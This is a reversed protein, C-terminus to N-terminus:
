KSKGSQPLHPARKDPEVDPGLKPLSVTFRTEYGELKTLREPNNWVPESQVYIDGGHRVVIERTIKLGIGTGPKFRSKDEVSRQYGEFIGRQFEKPIGLGMDIVTITVSNRKERARVVVKTHDFGYKVANDILNTFVQEMREKDCKVQLRRASLPHWEIRMKRAEASHQFRSMCENCIAVINNSQFNYRLAERGEIGFVLYNDVVKKARYIEGRIQERLGEAKSPDYLLEATLQLVNHLPARFEHAAESLLSQVAETRERFEEELAGTSERDRLVIGLETAYGAILDRRDQPIPSFATPRVARLVGYCKGDHVIPAAFFQSPLGGESCKGAWDPANMADREYRPQLSLLVSGTLGEGPRYSRIGIAEQAAVVIGGEGARKRVMVRMSTTAALILTDDALRFASCESAGLFRKVAVCAKGLIEDVEDTGLGALTKLLEATSNAVRYRGFLLGILAALGSVVKATCRIVSDDVPEPMPLDKNVKPDRQAIESLVCDLNDGKRLLQGGLVLGVILGDMFIPCFVETFGAHCVRRLATPIEARASSALAAEVLHRIDSEFCRIGFLPRIARGCLQEFMPSEVVFDGSLSMLNFSGRAGATARRFIETLHRLVPSADEGEAHLAAPPFLTELGPVNDLSFPGTEGQGVEAAIRKRRLSVGIRRINEVDLHDIWPAKASCRDRVVVECVASVFVGLLVAGRESLPFPCEPLHQANLAADIWPYPDPLEESQIFCRSDFAHSVDVVFRRRGDGCDLIGAGTKGYDVNALFFTDPGEDPRWGAGPFQWETIRRGDEDTLVIGVGLVDSLGQLVAGLSNVMKEDSTM